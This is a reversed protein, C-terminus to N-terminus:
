SGGTGRGGIHGAIVGWSDPRDCSGDVIGLGPVQLVMVSVLGSDAVVPLVSLVVGLSVELGLGHGSRGIV